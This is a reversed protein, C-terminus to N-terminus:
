ANNSLKILRKQALEFGQRMADAILIDSFESNTGGSSWKLEWKGQGNAYIQIFGNAGWHTPSHYQFEVINSRINTIVKEKVEILNKM